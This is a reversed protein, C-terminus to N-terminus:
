ELVAMKTIDKLKCVLCVVVVVAKGLDTCPQCFITQIQSVSFFSTRPNVELTSVCLLKM